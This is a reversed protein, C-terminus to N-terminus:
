CRAQRNIHDRQLCIHQECAIIWATSCIQCCCGHISSSLEHSRESPLNTTRQLSRHLASPISVAAQYRAAHDIHCSQDSIRPGCAIMKATSSTHWCCSTMPSSPRNSGDSQSKTTRLGDDTPRALYPLPKWRFHLSPDSLMRPFTSLIKFSRSLSQPVLRYWVLPRPIRLDQGSLAFGSSSSSNVCWSRNGVTIWPSDPM